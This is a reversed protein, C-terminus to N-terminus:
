SQVKTASKYDETKKRSRPFVFHLSATIYLSFTKWDVGDKYVQTTFCVTIALYLEYNAPEYDLGYHLGYDLGLILRLNGHPEFTM